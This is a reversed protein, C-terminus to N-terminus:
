ILHLTNSVRTGAAQCEMMSLTPDNWRFRKFCRSLSYQVAIPPAERPSLPDQFHVTLLFKQFVSLAVMQERTMGAQLLHKFWNKIRDLYTSPFRWCFAILCRYEDELKGETKQLFFSGGYLNGGYEHADFVILKNRINAPIKLIKNSAYNQFWFNGLDMFALLEPEMQPDVDDAWWCVLQQMRTAFNTAGGAMLNEFYHAWITPSEDKHVFISIINVAVYNPVEIQINTHTTIPGPAMAWECTRQVLTLHTQPLCCFSVPQSAPAAFGSPLKLIHHRGCTTDQYSVVTPSGQCQGTSAHPRFNDKRIYFTNCVSCQYGTKVKGVLCSDEVSKPAAKALADMVSPIHAAPMTQFNDKHHSLLHRRVNKKSLAKKCFICFFGLATAAFGSPLKLIHHRGCTTDQYSVVTPSGQCQGTSAHPRFNDKRIYFTNCVSCQYGTKVKGVLCSDEVSKPAAKALADMVSRINAAPM